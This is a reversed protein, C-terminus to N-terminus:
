RHSFVSKTVPSSQDIPDKISFTDKIQAKEDSDLSDVEYDNKKFAM